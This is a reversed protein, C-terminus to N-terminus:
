AKAGDGEGEGSSTKEGDDDEGPDNLGRKFQNIGQGLSRAVTPIRSGFLLLLILLIIWVEWGGPLGAIFLTATLM